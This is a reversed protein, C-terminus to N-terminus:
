VPMKDDVRGDGPRSCGQLGDDLRFPNNWDSLRPENAADGVRWAVDGPWRCLKALLGKSLSSIKLKNGRALAWWGRPQLATQIVASWFPAIFQSWDDSRIGEALLSELMSDCLSAVRLGTCTMGLKESAISCYDDISCWDPLHYAQSIRKLLRLEQCELHYSNLAVSGLCAPPRKCSSSQLCVSDWSKLADKPKLAEDDGLNRHVWTVLIIQGGPKCVRHMENM